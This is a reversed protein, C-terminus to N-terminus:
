RFGNKTKRRYTHKGHQFHHVLSDYVDNCNEIGGSTTHSLLGMTMASSTDQDVKHKMCGGAGDWKGKGHRLAGYSYVYACQSPGGQDKIIRSFYNISKRSKFHLAANDSKSYLCQIKGAPIDAPFNELMCRELDELVNSTFHQM